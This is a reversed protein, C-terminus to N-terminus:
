FFNDTLQLFFFPFRIRIQQRYDRVLLIQVTRVPNIRNHDVRCNCPCPAAPYLINIHAFSARRRIIIGAAHRYDGHPVARRLSQVAGIHFEHIDALIQRPFIHLARSQIQILSPASGPSLNDPCVPNLIAPLSRRNVPIILRGVIRPAIIRLKLSRSFRSRFTSQINRLVRPLHCPVLEQPM